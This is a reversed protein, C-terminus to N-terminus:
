IMPTRGNDAEHVTSFTNSPLSQSAKHNKEVEMRAPIGARANSISGKKKVRKPLADLEPNWDGGSDDRGGDNHTNMSVTQTLGYLVSDQRLQQDPLDRGRAIRNPSALPTLAEIPSKLLDDRARRVSGKPTNDAESKSFLDPTSTKLSLQSLKKALARRARSVNGTLNPIGSHENIPHQNSAPLPPSPAPRPNQFISHRANRVSGRRRQETDVSSTLSTRPTTAVDAHGVGGTSM